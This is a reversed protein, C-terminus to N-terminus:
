KMELKFGDCTIVTTGDWPAIKNVECGCETACLYVVSSPFESNGFQGREIGQVALM